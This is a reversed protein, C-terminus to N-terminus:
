KNLEKEIENDTIEGSFVQKLIHIAKITNEKKEDNLKKNECLKKLLKIENQSYRIGDQFIVEGTKKHMCYEQGLLNSKYYNYNEPDRAM